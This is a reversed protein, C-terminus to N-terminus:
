LIRPCALAKSHPLHSSRIGCHGFLAFWGLVEPPAFWLNTNNQKKKRHMQSSLLSHGQSPHIPTSPIALIILSM